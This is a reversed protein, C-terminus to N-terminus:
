KLDVKSALYKPVGEILGPVRVPISMAQQLALRTLLEIRIQQSKVILSLYLFTFFHTKLLRVILTQTVQQQRHGPVEAGLM